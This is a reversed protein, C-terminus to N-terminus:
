FCHGAPISPHALKVLPELVGHTEQPIIVSDAQFWGDRGAKEWWFFVVLLVLVCGVYMDLCPAKRDSRFAAVEPTSGPRQQLM